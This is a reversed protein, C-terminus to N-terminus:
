HRFRTGVLRLGEFPWYHDPTETPLFITKRQKESRAPELYELAHRYFTDGLYEFIQSQLALDYTVGLTSGTSFSLYKGPFVKNKCKERVFDWICVFTESISGSRKRVHKTLGQWATSQQKKEGSIKSRRLPGFIGGGLFFSIQRFFCFWVFFLMRYHTPLPEYFEHPLNWPKDGFCRLCHTSLFNPATFNFWGTYWSRAYLTIPLPLFM